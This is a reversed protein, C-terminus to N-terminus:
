FFISPILILVVVLSEQLETKMNLKILM